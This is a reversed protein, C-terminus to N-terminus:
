PNPQVGLFDRLQIALTQHDKTECEWVVLVRWGLAELRWKVRADRTMNQALKKAWFDANTKPLHSAQKCGHGHWFCGHVFIAAKWKPLVM